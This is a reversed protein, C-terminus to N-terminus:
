NYLYKYFFRVLYTQVQEPSPTPQQGDPGPVLYHGAHQVMVLQEPVHAAKLAAAFNRSQYPPVLGDQAGQVLLFPPDDKTLYTLPSYHKLANLDSTGFVMPIYPLNRLDTADFIVPGWEDAVAQVRSSKNLYQGVDFGASRDTAGLLSALQGGASQGMVGVRTNIGMRKTSSRLYRVACAVDISANRGNGLRYDITAFAIGKELFASVQSATVNSTRNGILWGGGHIQLVTPVAGFGTPRYFDM